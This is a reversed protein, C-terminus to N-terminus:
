NKIIKFRYIDLFFITTVISCLANVPNISILVINTKIYNQYCRRKQKQKMLDFHALSTTTSLMRKNASLKFVQPPKYKILRIIFIMGNNNNIIISPADYSSSEM